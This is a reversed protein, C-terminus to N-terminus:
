NEKISLPFYQYNIHYFNFEVCIINEIPVIVNRKQFLSYYALTFDDEYVKIECGNKALDIQFLGDPKKIKFEFYKVNETTTFLKIIDVLTEVSIMKREFPENAMKVGIRHMLIKDNDSITENMKTKGKKSKYNLIVGSM